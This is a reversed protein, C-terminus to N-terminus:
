SPKVPSELHVAITKAWPISGIEDFVPTLVSIFIVLLYLLVLLSIESKNVLGGGLTRTEDGLFSEPIL